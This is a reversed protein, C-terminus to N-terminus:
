EQNNEIYKDLDKKWSASLEKEEYVCDFAQGVSDFLAGVGRKSKCYNATNSSKIGLQAAESYSDIDAGIYIFEWNSHKEILKKIKAKDYERSANELGDTTIVFLVKNDKIKKNLSNITKGIADMLATCGRVYYEKPTLKEVEKIPKREYLVEYKDDFLVTTVYANKDKQHDKIFSNFGGITDEEIGSMSGSRDLIFIIDTEKKM